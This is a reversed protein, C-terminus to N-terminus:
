NENRGPITRDVTILGPQKKRANQIIEDLKIDQQPKRVWGGDLWLIDIKGYDSM